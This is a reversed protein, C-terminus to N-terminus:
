LFDAKTLMRQLMVAGQARTANGQPQFIGGPMGQIIGSQVAKAVFEASQRQIKSKDKFVILAADTSSSLTIPNGTYEMARIMMIAMQERTINDNPRFTADTNGTIIGAKAAAGIYDGTQTSPQVDRFRAAADRDGALGLGRSLMVAFEARTIKQEPKFMTGYSSDIINKAALVAVVSNSWHKGMDTFTRTSLFTGVVLNGATRARLLTYSGATSIKTPLYVADYYTLDLRAASTQTNNLTATTRATYEGKVNVAQANAYNAGTVATMRVDMLGTITQMGQSQLKSEFPAFTGSPIKEMRFVLSINSSDAILTTVLSNMDIDGLAVSYLYEGYRIIFKANKNRNAADQLPKLPVSVYASKETSPVEFVLAPTGNKNLYDYSTAIRDSSLTYRQVIQNYLSRDETATASDSKLLAYEAGFESAALIGLYAPRNGANASTGTLNQVTLNSFPALTNGNFDTIQGSGSMYSLDVKQGSKVVSSLILRLTTGSLSFSQVSVNSGDVRVGFQNNYLASSAQMNKSFTVTLEDANVSASSIEGVATTSSITVPQVNIYAARNGNLDSIGSTGPVYSITVNQNTPLNSQLTLIVQSGSVAVNTVYNPTNGVLVSFQSNMPLNTTSLGENYTLTIKNGAGAASQFVPPITDNTNRIFFDSFDAINQGFQNQLPYSSANYSVRVAQGNGAESNLTLYVTNGSSSIGNIGLSYGDSTVTFQNYAYAHVPKLTDNFNLVVSRGSIRGDKPTPMSSEITNTVQRQSFTSAVNGNADQITRLGGTYSVKVVQGVAIGTSLVVYVSDGQIYVSDIPRNEDNVTVAFSSTLLSTSTNLSKNYKLRITRNNELQVSSLQPATKDVAVTRFSWSNKGNLGDFLVKADTADTFAGKAIDIYYTTDGDLLSSPTIIYERGTSGKTVSAPVKTGSSKYLTVGGTIASNYNVDRNFLITIAKNLPVSESRDGPNLSSVAPGAQSVTTFKWSYPTAPFVNGDQDYFAGAPITVTYSTGNLFPSAASAPNLTIVNSGGGTVGTANVDLWRTRGDIVGDVAVTIVGSAPKMPRDFTLALAGTIPFDGAGNAPYPTVPFDSVGKTSFSWVSGSSIGSFTRSDDDRFAYADILVYYNAGVKLKNALNLTVSSADASRQFDVGPEGDVIRFTQVTANDAASILRIYGGGPLLKKNLKLNLQTLTSADVRATNAPIFETVAIAPNIEPATTFDWATLASENGDNDKFLAKPITVTYTTNPALQQQAGWKLEYEKSTGILGYSGIPITVFPAGAGKQTISIEGAQPNVMRDFGLRLTTGVNVYSANPGPSVNINFESAAYVASSGIGFSPSVSGLLLEGALFFATWTSIKKKM